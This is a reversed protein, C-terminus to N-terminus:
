DDDYQVPLVQADVVDDDGSEIAWPAPNEQIRHLVEVRMTSQMGGTLNQLKDASIGAAIMLQYASMEDRRSLSDQLYAFSAYQLLDILQERAAARTFSVDESDRRKAKLWALITSTPLGVQRSTQALAGVVTPWGNSEALLTVIAVFEDSYERQRRYRFRTTPDDRYANFRLNDEITNITFLEDEEERTLVATPYQKDSMFNTYMMMIRIILIHALDVPRFLM